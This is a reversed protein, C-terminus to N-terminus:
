SRGYKLVILLIAAALGFFLGAPFLFSLGTWYGALWGLGGYVAMGSLLYGFLSWGVSSGSPGPEAEIKRGAPRGYRFASPAPRAPPLEPQGDPPDGPRASTV